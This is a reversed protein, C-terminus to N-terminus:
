RASSNGPKAVKQSAISNTRRVKKPPVVLKSDLLDTYVTMDRKHHTKEIRPSVSQQIAKATVKSYNVKEDM